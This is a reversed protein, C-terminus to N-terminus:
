MSICGTNPMGNDTLKMWHSRIFESKGWWVDDGLIDNLETPRVTDLYRMFDEYTEGYGVLTKSFSPWGTNAIISELSGWSLRGDTFGSDISWNIWFRGSEQGGSNELVMIENNVTSANVSVYIPMEM